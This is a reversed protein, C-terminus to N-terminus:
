DPLWAKRWADVNQGELVWHSSVQDRLRDGQKGAEDLDHIHDRIADVWDKFRNKVRTVPLNGRYCILDSCVVPFGCAGYELLRLNSKCENFLNQEVPALALDLNLGALSQAYSDIDVGPHFEHVFPRIKPPCMGFFVWEVENALAKVVDTILDLDGTHSIGGAWGVRPKRGQRRKSQLDSWWEAPLRNEIVRIDGHLGAFAEALPETSVVFRDVYSLGRRLSKLIDKPMHERHVSKMPLNPLYDDLEYVKFAGSFKKIRRMAELREEGIQRQLLIVDPSYRELDTVHLLGGSLMGDVLGAEKLAKFPRIVRYHGCGHADAPHALVVPLPKWLLPRWTLHVDPELEFGNNNLSLNQNYAPDRALLPLWKQYLADQEGVFRKRKSEFAATDVRTQSVSGEHMLVAHPTWVTLYGAERTKLCLDVDNYSVKFHEEDMGGVEDYLSKRIMLCAATVASYNQDVQLRQMYGPANMPENLFPHEAPGRLGLVVGAHQITGDPYLLKAGVVGVEPRQAHNLLADVWDERLIATDNNLLVLYEGQAERVAMNNIASYNFPHPYRLVRIRSEGWGSVSDLWERAELTESNNDVILVEYNAYQTKELLSEVCRQLTPLQDKTPIIISVLPTSAHGYTISYRGPFDSAVTAQAYGRVVLHRALAAKEAENDKLIPARSVVLAEDIHGLGQTGGSNILRLLLDFELAGQSNEDYGDVSLFVDRRVLWHKAMVAPFSLLLDLNFGPRFAAGLSGDPMRQLEDGYIARCDPAAVLELAAIMLGSPTFEEGADVLMLWDFDATGVVQNIAAIYNDPRISVFHLKANPKTSPVDATTLAIIQLTAYLGQELGLSRITKMLQQTDGLLDVILIGLRPGGAHQCLYDNILQNQIPTPLRAELWRVLEPRDPVVLPVGDVDCHPAPMTAEAPKPIPQTQRLRVAEEVLRQHLAFLTWDATQVGLSRCRVQGGAQPRYLGSSRILSKFKKHWEVGVTQDERAKQSYQEKSIRFYSLPRSLLALNGKLLLKSYIALDGVWHIEQEALSFIGNGFALLDERRCLVSSPEGVFNVTHDGWFSVIDEGNLVTDREFLLCTAAIDTLFEGKEDILRRRSSVLSVGPTNELTDVLLRVCDPVIIDDDYLFKIYEGRAEAVCRTVNGIEGLGVQNRFYRIPWRSKAKLKEVIGAIGDDPCDDGIVIEIEDYNQRLASSLAAEFYTAKYAPIVISVLPTSSM